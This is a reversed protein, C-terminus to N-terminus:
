SRGETMAGAKWRRTASQAADLHTMLGSLALRFRDFHGWDVISLRRLEFVDASEDNMGDVTTLGCRYGTERLLARTSDDFCGITGNPYCFLTCPGGLHREIIARSTELEQRARGSTCRTLIVHSATHSGIAVTGSEVMACTEPWTLPRYIEPPDGATALRAGLQEEIEGILGDLSAQDSAKLRSRLRSDCAIRDARSRLPFHLTDAGIRIDAAAKRTADLAYELRDTWLWENDAVFNTALFATATMGFERLLPWALRHVSQYGDDFTLAVARPPLPTGQEYHRVLQELSIVEHHRRLYELHRRFQGIYLHKGHSNQIGREDRRDTLGHYALIAPAHRYWWRTARYAQSHLACKLLLRKM